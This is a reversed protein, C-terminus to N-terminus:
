VASAERLVEEREEVTLGGWVGYPERVTLAHDLCTGIVPCDACVAKAGRERLEKAAGREAEPSFFRESEMGMCSGEYQWDYQSQLALPLRKLNAM